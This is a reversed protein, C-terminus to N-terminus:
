NRYNKAIYWFVEKYHECIAPDENNQKVIRLIYSMAYNVVVPNKFNNENSDEL